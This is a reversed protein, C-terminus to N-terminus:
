LLCRVTTLLLSVIFVVGALWRWPIPSSIPQGLLAAQIVEEDRSMPPPPPAYLLGIKVKGTDYPTVRKPAEWQENVRRKTKKM